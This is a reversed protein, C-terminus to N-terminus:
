GILLLQGPGTHLKEINCRLHACQVNTRVHEGGDALPIIHDLSASMPHPHKLKRRVKRRCVGCRWGDREFIEENTFRDVVEAGRRASPSGGLAYPRLTARSECESCTSM